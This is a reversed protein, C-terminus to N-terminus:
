LRLIAQKDVLHMTYIFKGPVVQYAVGLTISSDVGIRRDTYFNYIYIYIYLFVTFLSLEPPRNSGWM